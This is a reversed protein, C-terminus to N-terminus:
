ECDDIDKRKTTIKATKKRTDSLKFETIIERDLNFETRKDSELFLWQNKSSSWRYLRASYPESLHTYTMRHYAGNAPAVPFTDGETFPEENPPLADQVYLGTSNQGIRTLHDLNQDAAAKIESDEFKRIASSGTAGKQPVRNKANALITQSIDSYDQWVTSNGDDRNTLGMEDQTGALDGFIDQTEESAYLPQATVNVLKPKWAVTYSGSDWAVDTVELWKLIPTMMPTYETESPLNIIDGIVVPRGLQTVISSFSMQIQYTNSLIDFGIGFKSLDSNSSQPIYSGKLNIPDSSYDRTRNEMFIKDQINDIATAQYNHYLALAQVGWYDSSNGNFELPRLRWYRMPASSKTMITNLCNDNPLALVEVGFWKLTDDSRELRVRTVRNKSNDSQKIAFATIHKRIATDSSYMKMGSSTKIEGFDYGIFGSTILGPGRQISRWETLFKDFAYTDLYNPTYGSSISNGNGTCDVLKCQEHVGLMKYVMVDAGALNLAENMVQETFADDALRKTLAGPNCTPDVPPNCSFGPPLKDKNSKTLNEDSMVPNTTSKCITDTICTSLSM